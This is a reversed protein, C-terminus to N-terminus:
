QWTGLIYLISHDSLIFRNKGYFRSILKQKKRQSVEHLVKHDKTTFFLYGCLSVLSIVFACLPEYSIKIFSRVINYVENEAKELRDNVVINDFQDALKMEEAAKAVRMKIKEPNDTGRKQLDKKLNM